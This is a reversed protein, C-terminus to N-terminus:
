FQASSSWRQTERIISDSAEEGISLCLARGHTHTVSLIKM